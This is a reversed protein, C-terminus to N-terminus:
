EEHALRKETNEIEEITMYNELLRALEAILESQARIIKDQDEIVKSLSSRM